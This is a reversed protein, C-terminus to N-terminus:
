MAVRMKSKTKPQMKRRARRSERDEIKRTKSPDTELMLKEKEAKKKEERRAQAAEQRQSHQLKDLTQAVKARNKNAKERAEKSLRISKVHDLIALALQLLPQLGAGSGSMLFSIQIRKQAKRVVVVESDDSDTVFGTYQDSIHLSELRDSHKNLLACLSPTLFASCSEAFEPLVFLADKLGMRSGPKPQQCFNHLDEYEKHMKLLTKKSGVALMVHDMDEPALQFVMTMTDREPRVLGVLVSFLDHRKCMQLQVLLGTCNVRGSAWLLYVNDSEKLLEGETPEEGEGTDGVLAFNSTLAEMNTELWEHAIASNRSRGIFYNAFYLLMAAVVAMEFVYNQWSSIIRVTSQKIEIDDRNRRVVEEEFEDSDFEDADFSDDGGDEEQESFEDDEDEVFMDEMLDDEEEDEPPMDFDFDGEEEFEAFDDDELGRGPAVQLLVLVALCCSALRLRSCM